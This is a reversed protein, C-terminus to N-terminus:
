HGQGRSLESEPQIQKRAQFPKNRKLRSAQGAAAAKETAERKGQEWKQQALLGLAEMEQSEEPTLSDSIEM